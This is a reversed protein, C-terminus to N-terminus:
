GMPEPDGTDDAPVAWGERMKMPESTEDDTMMTKLFAIFASSSAGASEPVDNDASIQSGGPNSGSSNNVGDDGGGGSCGAMTLVAALALASASKTSNKM